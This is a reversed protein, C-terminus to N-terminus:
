YDLTLIGYVGRDEDLPIWRDCEANQGRTFYLEVVGQGAPGVHNKTDRLDRRALHKGPGSKGAVCGECRPRSGDLGGADVVNWDIGQLLYELGMRISAVLDHGSKRLEHRRTKSVRALLEPPELRPLRPLGVPM